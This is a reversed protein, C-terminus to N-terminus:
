DADFSQITPLPLERTGTAAYGIADVVNATYTDVNHEKLIVNRANEKMIALTAPQGLLTKLKEVLASVVVEDENSSIRFGSEGNRVLDVECGDGLGCLVPLGHALAESVALGGLGPLVFVDAIEFYDSVQEVVQGAFLTQEAIGQEAALQELRSRDPGDGVIVLRADPYEDRLSRYAHLLRDIKKSRVLAGVFLITTTQDTLGIQERLAAVSTQRSEIDAFVRETDVCNVARFCREAPYGMRQFYRLAVSSYGLYVSARREQWQMMARFIRSPLSLQRKGQLEGLTWWVVPTRTLMAYALVFFNTFFNSGGESLIVDPRMRLLTVWILPHCVWQVGSKKITWHEVHSIDDLNDGNTVKTNPVSSGHLVTLQIRPHRSLRAFIPVRWHQCVRYTVAVKIPKKSDEM